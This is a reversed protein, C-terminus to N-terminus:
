HQNREQTKQVTYIHGNNGVNRRYRNAVDKPGLIKFKSRSEMNRLTFTEDWSKVIVSM